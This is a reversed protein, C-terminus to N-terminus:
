YRSTIQTLVKGVEGTQYKIYLKYTTIAWLIFTISWTYKSYNPNNSVFNYVPGVIKYSFCEHYEIRRDGAIQQRVFKEVETVACMDNNLVWHLMLFPVIMFHLLLLITSNTFPTSIIFLIFFLHVLNILLLLIENLIM